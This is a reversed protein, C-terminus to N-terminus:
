RFRLYCLIADEEHLFHIAYTQGFGVNEGWRADINANIWDRVTALYEFNQDWFDDFEVRWNGCYDLLDIARM